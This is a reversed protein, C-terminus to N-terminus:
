GAKSNSQKVLKSVTASPVAGQNTWYAYRTQDLTFANGDARPDFLGIHEIFRGDRSNRQDSVVVRFFPAKRSGHRALRIHVAM